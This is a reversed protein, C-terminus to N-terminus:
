YGIKKLEASLRKLRGDLDDGASSTDILTRLKQKLILLHTEIHSNNHDEEIPKGELESQVGTHSYNIAACILFALDLVRHLPLEESQRSWRGNVYRWVKASIDTEGEGNWQALGISLGRADTKKRYNGDIHAYGNIKLIPKHKLNAPVKEEMEM